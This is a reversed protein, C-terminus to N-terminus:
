FTDDPKKLKGFHYSISLNHSFGLTPHYSGAYTFAGQGNYWIDVGGGFQFPETNFGWFVSGRNSVDIKQGLALQIAQDKEFTGRATLSFAGKGVVEAYISYKPNIAPSSEILKPSNINDISAGIFVRRYHYSFSAGATGARQSAYNGGFSYDIGSISVAFSYDFYQYALSIKGTREAYYDREGLQSAGITLTYNGFRTAAAVYARDLEKIEFERMGGLEIILEGKEISTSPMFLLTSASPESFLVTGAMGLGRNTAFEFAGASGGLLITMMLAVTLKIRRM